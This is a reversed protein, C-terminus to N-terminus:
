VSPKLRKRRSWTNSRSRQTEWISPVVIRGKFDIREYVGRLRSKPVIPEPKTILPMKAVEEDALGDVRQIARGILTTDEFGKTTIFGVKARKRYHGCQDRRDDWAEAHPM